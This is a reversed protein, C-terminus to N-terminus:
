VSINPEKAHSVNVSFTLIVLPFFPPDGELDTVIADDAPPLLLGSLVRLGVANYKFVCNVPFSDCSGCRGDALGFILPFSLV